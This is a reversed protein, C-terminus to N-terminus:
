HGLKKTQKRGFAASLISYNIFRSSLTRGCGEFIFNTYQPLPIFCSKARYARSLKDKRKM